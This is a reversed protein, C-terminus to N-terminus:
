SNFDADNARTIRIQRVAVIKKAMGIAAFTADARSITRKLPKEGPVM